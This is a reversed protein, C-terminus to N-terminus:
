DEEHYKLLVVTCNDLPRVGFEQAADTLVEATLRFEDHCAEVIQRIGNEPIAKYLGDTCLLAIDGPQMIFPKENYDILSIGNMGLYSILAERRAANNLSHKEACIAQRELWMGYNHTTTVSTMKGNRILYLKSDGVSMWFLQNKKVYVATITTGAQVPEGNEDSLASVTCDMDIASQKFFSPIGTSQDLKGFNEDLIRVAEQSAREGAQLGGMGDCVAALVSGGNRKYYMADQQYERDGQMSSGCVYVSPFELESFIRTTKM